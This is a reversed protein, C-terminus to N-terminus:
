PLFKGTNRPNKARFRAGKRLFTGPEKLNRQTTLLTTGRIRSHPSSANSSKRAESEQWRITAEKTNRLEAMEAYDMELLDRMLVLEVTADDVQEAAELIAM